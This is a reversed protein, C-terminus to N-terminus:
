EVVEILPGACWNVCVGYCAVSVGEMGYVRWGGEGM